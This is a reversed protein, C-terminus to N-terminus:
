RAKRNKAKEGDLKAVAVAWKSCRNAAGGFAIFCALREAGSKEPCCERCAKQRINM